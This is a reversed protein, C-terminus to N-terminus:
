KAAGGKSTQGGFSTTVSGISAGFAAILGPIATKGFNFSHGKAAENLAMVGSVALFSGVASAGAKLMIDTTTTRNKYPRGTLQNYQQEAQLRSNSKKLDEDSMDIPDKKKGTTKNYRAEGSPKLSGDENQFRRIGWRMGMIGYHALFKPNEM